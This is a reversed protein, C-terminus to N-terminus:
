KEHQLSIIGLGSERIQNVNVLSNWIVLTNLTTLRSIGFFTIVGNEYLSLSTLKTLSSLGADTIRSNFALDLSTLSTLQRLGDDSIQKNGKLSLSKLRTLGCLCHDTLSLLESGPTFDLNLSTLNPLRPLFRDRLVNRRHERNYLPGLTAVSLFLVENWKVSVTASKFADLFPLNSLIQFWLDQPVISLGEM